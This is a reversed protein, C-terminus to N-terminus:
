LLADLEALDLSDDALMVDIDAKARTKMLDALAKSLTKAVSADAGAAIRKAISNQQGIPLLGVAEVVDAWTAADVKENVKNRALIQALQEKTRPM